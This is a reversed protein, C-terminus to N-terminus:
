VVKGPPWTLDTRTTPIHAQPTGTKTDFLRGVHRMTFKAGQDDLPAEVTTDAAQWTYTLGKDDPRTTQAVDVPRVRPRAPTQVLGPVLRTTRRAPLRGFGEVGGKEHAGEVGPRCCFVNFGYHSRFSM